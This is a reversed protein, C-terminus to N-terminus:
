ANGPQNRGNLFSSEGDSNFRLWRDSSNKHHVGNEPSRRIAAISNVGAPRSAWGVWCCM